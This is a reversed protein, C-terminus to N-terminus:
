ERELDARHLYDLADTPRMGTACLKDFAARWSIENRRYEGRIQTLQDTTTAAAEAM